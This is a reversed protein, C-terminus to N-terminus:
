VSAAQRDGGEGAAAGRADEALDHVVGVAAHRAQGLEPLEGLLVPELHHEDGVEDPVPQPLRQHLPGAPPTGVLWPLEGGDGVPGLEVADLVHREHVAVVRVGHGSIVDQDACLSHRVPSIKWEVLHSQPLWSSMAIFFTAASPRPTM